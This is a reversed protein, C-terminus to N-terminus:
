VERRRQQREAVPLIVWYLLPTGILIAAGVVQIALIAPNSSVASQGSFTKGILFSPVLLIGGFVIGFLGIFAHKM